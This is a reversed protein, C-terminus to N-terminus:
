EAGTMSVESSEDRAIEHAFFLTEGADGDLRVLPRAGRMEVLKGRMGHFMSWDGVLMRVRDGRYLPIM